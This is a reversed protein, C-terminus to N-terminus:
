ELADDYLNAKAPYAHGPFHNHRYLQRRNEDKRLLHGTMISNRLTKPTGSDALNM